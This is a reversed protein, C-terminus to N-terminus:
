IAGEILDYTRILYRVLDAVRREGQVNISLTGGQGRGAAVLARGPQPGGAVVAKTKTASLVTGNADPIIMEPGEEGVIYPSGKSIPGGGARAGLRNLTNEVKNLQSDAVLVSVSVRKSRVANLLDRVHKVRSEATATTAVINISRSAPLHLIQTALAQAKDKAYGAAIAAKVFKDRQQTFVANAQAASYGANDNAKTVSNFARALTVLSERNDRGKQTNLDISKGNERIAKNTDVIAQKAKTQAEYADLNGDTYEDVAQRMDRISDATTEAVDSTDKLVARFKGTSGAAQLFPEVLAQVPNLATKAAETLRPFDDGIDHVTSYVKGLIALLGGVDSIATNVGSFADKLADASGEANDSLNGFLDGIEAGLKPLEDSIVDIVPGAARAAKTFGSLINAILGTFGDTLPALYGASAAFLNKITPGIQTKFAHQVSTIADLTAPVFPAAATTLERGIVGSLSTAASKVAPDQAALLVGGAVGGIGAAGVVAAGITAALFPALEAAAPILAQQLPGLEQMKSRIGAALRAGINRAENDVDSPELLDKAKTLKSLNSSERSMQAGLKAREAATGAKAFERALVKLNDSSTAIDHNLKEVEHDILKMSAAGEVGTSKFLGKVNRLVNGVGSDRGIVNFVVSTDTM